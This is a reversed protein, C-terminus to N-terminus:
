PQLGHAREAVLKGSGLLWEHVPAHFALFAEADSFLHRRPAAAPDPSVLERIALETGFAWVGCVVIARAGSPSRTLFIFGYDDRLVGDPGREPVFDQGEFGAVHEPYRIQFEPFRDELLAASVSNVSPGGISIILEQRVDQVAEPTVVLLPKDRGVARIAAVLAAIGMGEPMPMIRLNPPIRARTRQRPSFWGGHFGPIVIQVRSCHELLHVLHGHARRARLRGWLRGLVFGALAVAIPPLWASAFSM